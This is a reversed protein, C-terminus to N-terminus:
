GEKGWGGVGSVGAASGEVGWSRQPEVLSLEVAANRGLSLFRWTQHLGERQRDHQEVGIM